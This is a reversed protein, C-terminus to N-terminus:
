SFKHYYYIARKDNDYFNKRHIIDNAINIVESTNSLNNMKIASTLDITNELNTSNSLITSNLSNSILGQPNFLTIVQQLFSQRYSNSTYFLKEDFDFLLNNLQKYNFKNELILRKLRTIYVRSICKSNNICFDNITKITLTKQNFTQKTQHIKNLLDHFNIQM